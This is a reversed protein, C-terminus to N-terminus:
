GHEFSYNFDEIDKRFTKAVKEISSEKYYKSYHKRKTSNAKSLKPQTIGIRQCIESFDNEINELKGIRDVIIEGTETSLFDCQLEFNGDVRWDIYEEFSRFAKTMEHERHKTNQMAYEYLSVQWDWPNRVFAFKYYNEFIDSPLKAKLEKATIHGKFDKSYIRPILGLRAGALKLPNEYAASHDSYKNLVKRISTGAVKYVHIFIFKRSHSILM